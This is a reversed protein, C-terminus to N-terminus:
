MRCLNMDGQVVEDLHGNESTARVCWFNEGSSPAKM